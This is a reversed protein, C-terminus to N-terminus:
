LEVPDLALAARLRRWSEALMEPLVRTESVVTMFNTDGSWRPVAHLHLHHAVGAGAAEGLNLGLNVGDPQYVARLVREARRTQRMLEDATVMPMEALSAVHQYPVVMLHGGNYPYANLVLFCTPGRELIHTAAEADERAMGHEIAYDVSAIMNCFVCHTDNPWAALAEPVGRKPMGKEAGTVYAYRWPTWLHDMGSTYRGLYGSRESRDDCSSFAVEACGAADL